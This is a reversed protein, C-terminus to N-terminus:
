GIRRMRGRFLLGLREINKHYTKNTQASNGKVCVLSSALWWGEVLDSLGIFAKITACLAM